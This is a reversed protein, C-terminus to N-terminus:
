PRDSGRPAQTLAGFSRLTAAWRLNRSTRLMVICLLLVILLNAMIGLLIAIGAVVGAGVLTLIAAAVLGLWMSVLLVALMVGAAIMTVLSRGALRTELVALRLCDHALGSLESWLLTANELLGTAGTPDSASPEQKSTADIFASM